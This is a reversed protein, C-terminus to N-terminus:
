RPRRLMVISSLGVLVALLIAPVIFVKWSPAQAAVAQPTSLLAPDGPVTVGAVASGVPLLTNGPISERYRKGGVVYSGTCAYGALNSGSGGVEGLCSTVTVAVRMGHSRLSAQQANKQFGAVLLVVATVALVVLLIGTM